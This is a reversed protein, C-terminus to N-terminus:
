ATALLEAVPTAAAAAAPRTVYCDAHYWGAAERGTPDLGRRTVDLTAARHEDSDACRRQRFTTGEVQETILGFEALAAAVEAYDFVRLVFVVLWLDHPDALSRLLREFTRHGIYGVGGTCVLLGTGAVGAALEPSPDDDELNEAWGGALLGTRLGYDVAPRSVDLGLVSLDPRRLRGAYFRRDDAILEDPPLDARRPDIARAAVDDLDVRYRLLAANIGYSCCVDLVTRPRGDQESAAIVSEVVPRARQPIQYELDALAAFYARPDPRTYIDTFDTKTTGTLADDDLL